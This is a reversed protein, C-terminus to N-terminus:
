PRQIDPLTNLCVKIYISSDRGLFCPFPINVLFSLCLATSLCCRGNFNELFKLQGPELLHRSGMPKVSVRPLIYQNKFFELGAESERLEQRHTVWIRRLQLDFSSCHGVTRGVNDDAGIFIGQLLVSSDLRFAGGRIRSEKPTDGGFHVAGTSFISIDLGMDPAKDGDVSDVSNLIGDVDRIGGLLFM